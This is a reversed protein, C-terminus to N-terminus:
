QLEHQIIQILKLMILKIKILHLVILTIFLSALKFSGFPSQSFNNPNTMKKLKDPDTSVTRIVNLLDLHNVDKPFPVKLKNAFQELQPIDFSNGNFSLFFKGQESFIKSVDGMAETPNLPKNIGSVVKNGSIYDLGSQMYKLYDDM